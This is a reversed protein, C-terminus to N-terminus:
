PRTSLKGLRSQWDSLSNHQGASPQVALKCCQGAGFGGEFLSRAVHYRKYGAELRAALPLMEGHRGLGYCDERFRQHCGLVHRCSLEGCWLSAFHGHAVAGDSEAEESFAQPAGPGHM